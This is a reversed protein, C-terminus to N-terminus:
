KNPSYLMILYAQTCASQKALVEFVFCNSIDKSRRCEFPTGPIFPTAKANAAASLAALQRMDAMEANTYNLVHDLFVYRGAFRSPIIAIRYLTIHTVACCESHM